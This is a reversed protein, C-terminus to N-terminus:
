TSERLALAAPLAMELLPEGAPCDMRHLLRSVAREALLSTPQSISTLGPNLYAGVSIGDFGMVGARRPVPVGLERLIRLVRLACLDNETFIGTRYAPRRFWAELFGSLEKGDGNAACETRGGHGLDALAQRFGAYKPGSEEGIFLFRGYGREALHEAAMTGAQRRDVYVSDVGPIRCAVAVVPVDLKQLSAGWAGGDERVPAALIGDVRYRRAIDLYEREREESYGSNFLIMSYGRKRAEAEIGKALDAFFSDSVDPALLALLHTRSGQLSKALANPQYDHERACALVRERIEPAVNPKGNLVRSVTPQSVRALRAIETMTIM